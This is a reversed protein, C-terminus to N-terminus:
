MGEGAGTEVGDAANFTLNPDFGFGATDADTNLFSDFDFNELIDPHELASFDLNFTTQQRKNASHVGSGATCRVDPIGLDNFSQQAQDPPQQM